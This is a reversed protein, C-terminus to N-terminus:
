VRQPLTVLGSSKGMFSAATDRAAKAQKIVATTAQEPSEVLPSPSSSEDAPASLPPSLPELPLEPELV